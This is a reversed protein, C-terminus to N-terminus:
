ILGRTLAIALAQERTRAHLRRRASALFKGATVPQVGMREAIRQVQFGESLWRLAEAERSTLAPSSRHVDRTGAPAGRPDHRTALLAAAFRARAVTEPRAIEEARDASGALLAVGAAQGQVGTPALLSARVGRGELFRCLREVSGVPRDVARTAVDLHVPQVNRRCYSLWPDALQVGDSMYEAMAEPPLTTQVVVECSRADLGVGFSLDDAGLREFVAAAVSWVAAAGSAGDFADIADILFRDM